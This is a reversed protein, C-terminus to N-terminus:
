HAIVDELMSTVKKARKKIPSFHGETAATAPQNEKEIEEAFKFPRGSENGEQKKPAEEELKNTSPKKKKDAAKYQKSKFTDSVAITSM